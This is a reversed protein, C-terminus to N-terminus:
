IEETERIEYGNPATKAWFERSSDREFLDHMLWDKDSSFWHRLILGELTEVHGYVGTAEHRIVLRLPFRVLRSSSVAVPEIGAFTTKPVAYEPYSM